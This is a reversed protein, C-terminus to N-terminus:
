FSVHFIKLLAEDTFLLKKNHMLELDLLKKNIIIAGMKRTLDRMNRFFNIKKTAKQM